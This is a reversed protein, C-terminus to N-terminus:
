LATCEAVFMTILHTFLNDRSIVGIGATHVPKTGVCKRGNKNRKLTTLFFDFLYIDLLKVIIYMCFAYQM